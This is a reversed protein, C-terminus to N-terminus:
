AGPGCDICHAPPEPGMDLARLLDRLATRLGEEIVPHYFPMELLEAVSLQMQIAWALLHALHENQPGIMESGLLRGTGQEAYVRLLGQNRLLVRARGQDEFSVEGVCFDIKDAVLQAHRCGAFAIQPDSFVIGLPTRRTRKFVNPYRAANEGARRGEDAAEHLVTRDANADGAIFIHSDAARMTLSDFLPVGDDSLALGSNELALREVNPRRGTAALLYDFRETRLKSDAAEYQVVVCEGDREIRVNGIDLSLPLDAGIVKVAYDRVAPDSIGALSGARGFVRVRVGLMHLAQGLELGIAGAGFVAVSQALDQWEFVDDSVILRDGAAELEQPIRPRSGTALIIRDAHILPLDSQPQENADASSLRLTFPDEFQAFARVLHRQEFTNMSQLVFGVFRDREARVRRMVAAGDVVASDCRIGFEPLAKLRHRAEAPAILLKSPMCGVRACTTGLPGGDILAIRDTFKRVQRYASLGATGAGVIAVDFKTTKM